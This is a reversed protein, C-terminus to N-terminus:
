SKEVFRNMLDILISFVYITLLLLFNRNLIIIFKEGRGHIEKLLNMMVRLRETLSVDDFRKRIVDTM